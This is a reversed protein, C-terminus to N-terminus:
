PATTLQHVMGAVLLDVGERFVEGSDRDCRAAVYRRLELSEAPVDELGLRHGHALDGIELLVSGVIYGSMASVVSAAGEPSFGAREALAFAELIPAWSDLSSLRRSALLPFARPHALGVARVRGAIGRAQSQWDGGTVQLRAEEAPRDILAVLELLLSAIGDLLDDKSTVHNYLSMAEVGLVKGLKRMSLADVGHKDVLTLAAAVIRRRTLPLRDIATM